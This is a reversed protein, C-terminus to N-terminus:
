YRINLDIALIALENQGRKERNAIDRVGIWETIFNNNALM